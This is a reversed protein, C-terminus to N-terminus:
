VSEKEDEDPETPEGIMDEIRAMLQDITDGYRDLKVNMERLRDSLIDVINQLVKVWLEHNLKLLMDLEPKRIKLGSAPEKAVVNASRSQGTFLGMEGISMGPTMEALETGTSSLVSLTGQVLLFMEDAPDGLRYIVQKPEYHHLHSIQLLRHVENTILGRFLSLKRAMPVIKQIQSESMM